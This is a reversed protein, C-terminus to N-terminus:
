ERPANESAQAVETCSKFIAVAAGALDDLRRETVHTYISLTTQYSSHGMLYMTDEARLGADRCMTAYNHRLWHPTIEEPLGAAERIRAWRRTAMSDTMPAGPNKGPLIYAGPLGRRARLMDMLPAPVPLTRASAQTKLEGVKDGTAQDVDREVHVRAHAWDVDAWQLGRAEGSRVGLWYLIAAFLGDPHEAVTAQLRAREAPTLARKVRPATARAKVLGRTPDLTLIQDQVASAFVGHLAAICTHIQTDSRGALGNVFAQIEMPKIARLNREGFEPLLYRRMISKYGALTAPSLHPAKRVNLWQIAYTGFLQDTESAEGTIYKATVRRREAELEARTRGSIWKFLPKGDPLMGIKIKTRYLGSKQKKMGMKAQM